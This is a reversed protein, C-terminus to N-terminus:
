WGPSSERERMAGDGVNGASFAGVGGGIRKSYWGSDLELERAM